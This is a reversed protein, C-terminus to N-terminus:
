ISQEILDYCSRLDTFRFKTEKIFKSADLYSNKMRKELFDFDEISCRILNADKINLYDFFDKVMEFRSYDELSNIHYFGRSNSNLLLSIGRAVDGAYTPSLREDDAALIKEGRKYKELWETFLNGEGKKIGFVKGPRIILYDRLNSTMFDEVEKKQKGYISMPNRKDEEKYGGTDGDFVAASSIFIPIIEKKRLEKIIREIGTVNVEYSYEPNEKCKDLKTIASCIVAYEFNEANLSDLSSNTMDFYVLGPKKNKNYTGIVEKNESKLLRYLYSGILGSAGFILIKKNKM